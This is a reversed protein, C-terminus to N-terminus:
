TGAGGLGVVDVYAESDIAANAATEAFRYIPDFGVGVAVVAVALAVLVAVQGSEVPAVEVAPTEVGWFSSTWVRTTYLITLAAGFLLAVLTLAPGIGAVATLSRVAADFALFKGFFGSLPPLGVLSLLGVFVAGSLVPAHGAVGGLDGLDDTGTADQLTAASLFLLGKALAHHLAFVLAAAIAVGRLPGTAAAAVAVTIAIFGVQGISSYALLRKVNRQFIATISGAFVATLSLVVFVDQLPVHEFSYEAGFVSYILRILVYVAVKTATAALFATVASPAYTYANPLWLHLPFLALKLCAGVILFGFATFVTRTGAAEPLRQLLDQMNLTGTMAYLLGIGLRRPLEQQRLMGGVGRGDQGLVGMGARDTDRLAEFQDDIADLLETNDAPIESASQELTGTSSYNDDIESGAM